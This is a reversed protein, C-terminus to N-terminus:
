ECESGKLYDANVWGAVPATLEQWGDVQEGVGRVEEGHALYGVVRASPNGDARVHLSEVATVVFCRTAPVTARALAPRKGLTAQPSPSVELMTATPSPPDVVPAVAVSSMCAMGLIGALALFLVIRKRM